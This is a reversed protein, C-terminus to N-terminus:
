YAYYYRQKCYHDEWIDDVSLTAHDIIQSPNSSYLRSTHQQHTTKCLHFSYSYQLQLLFTAVRFMMILPSSIFLISHEIVEIQIHITDAERYRYTTTYQYSIASIQRYDVAMSFQVLARLNGTLFSVMCTFSVTDLIQSCVVLHFFHCKVFCQRYQSM